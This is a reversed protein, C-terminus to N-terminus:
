RQRAQSQRAVKTGKTARIVKQSGGEEEDVIQDRSRIEAAQEDTLDLKTIALTESEGSGCGPVMVACAVVLFLNRLWSKSIM